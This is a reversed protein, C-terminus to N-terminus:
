SIFIVKCSEVWLAASILLVNINLSTLSQAEISNWMECSLEDDENDTVV